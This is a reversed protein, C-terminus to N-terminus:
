TSHIRSRMFVFLLLLMFLCNSVALYIIFPTDKYLLQYKNINPITKFCLWNDSCIFSPLPIGDAYLKLNKYPVIKIKVIDDVSFDDVDIVIRNAHFYIKAICKSKECSVIKGPHILKALYHRDDEYAINFDEQNMLLKPYERKNVWLASVGLEQYQKLTLHQNQFYDSIESHINERPKVTEYSKAFVLGKFNGTLWTNLLLSSSPDRETNRFNSLQLVRSNQNSNTKLIDISTNVSHYNLDGWLHAAKGTQHTIYILSTILTFSAFYIQWRRNWSKSWLCVAVVSTIGGLFWWKSPTTFLQTIVHDRGLFNELNLSAIGLLLISTFALSLSFYQNKTGFIKKARISAYVVYFICTTAWISQGQYQKIGLIGLRFFEGLKIFNGNYITRWSSSWYELHCYLLPALLLIGIAQIRFYIFFIKKTFIPLLFLFEAIQVYLYLQPNGGYIALYTAILLLADNKTKSNGNLFLYQWYYIKAILLFQFPLVYYWNVSFQGMYSGIGACLLLVGKIHKPIAFENAFKNLLLEILIFYTVSWLNIIWYPQLDFIHTVLFSLFLIPSFIAYYPSEAVRTLLEGPHMWPFEGSLMANFAYSFVPTFQSFNDDKNFYASNGLLYIFPLLFPIVWSRDLVWLAKTYMKRLSVIQRM